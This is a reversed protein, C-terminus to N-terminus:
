KRGAVCWTVDHEVLLLLPNEDAAIHGTMRECPVARAGSACASVNSAELSDKAEIQRQDQRAVALWGVLWRCDRGLQAFAEDLALRFDQVLQGASRGVVGL